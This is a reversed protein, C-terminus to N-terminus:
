FKLKFRKALDFLVEDSEIEEVMQIANNFQKKLVNLKTEVEREFNKYIENGKTTLWEHFLMNLENKPMQNLFFTLDGTIDSGLTSDNKNIYLLLDHFYGNLTLIDKNLTSLLESGTSPWVPLCQELLPEDIESQSYELPLSPSTSTSTSTDKKLQKPVDPSSPPHKISISSNISAPSLDPTGHGNVDHFSISLSWEDPIIQAKSSTEKEASTFVHAGSVNHFDTHQDIDNVSNTSHTIEKEERTHQKLPTSSHRLPGDDQESPSQVPSSLVSANDESFEINTDILELKERLPALPILTDPKSDTVKKPIQPTFADEPIVFNSNGNNDFSFVDYSDDLITNPKTPKEQNKKFNLFIDKNIEAVNNLSNDNAQLDKEGSFAIDTNGRSLKVKRRPSNELKCSVKPINSQQHINSDAQHVGLSELSNKLRSSDNVTKPPRGRPRKVKPETNKDIIKRPRGRKKLVQVKPSHPNHATIDHKETTVIVEATDESRMVSSSDNPSKPKDLSAVLNNPDSKSNPKSTTPTANQKSNSQEFANTSSIELDTPLSMTKNAIDRGKTDDTLELKKPRGRRKMTGINQSKPQKLAISGQSLKTTKQTDDGSKKLRGRKKPQIPIPQNNAM